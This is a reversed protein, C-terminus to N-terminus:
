KIEEAKTLTQKATEGRDNIMKIKDKETIERTAKPMVTFETYHLGGAYFELGERLIANQKKLDYVEQPTWDADCGCECEGYAGCKCGMGDAM